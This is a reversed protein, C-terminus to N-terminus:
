LGLNRFSKEMFFREFSVGAIDIRENTVLQWGRRLLLSYSFLSAETVLRTHGEERAEREVQDLLLSAHGRRAFNGRCYLLALRNFPYRVVFAAISQNECSIWGKGEVLSKDLVGPLWALSVWAQIQEKTYLEEGQSTIADAYVQRVESFASPTLLKLQPEVFM